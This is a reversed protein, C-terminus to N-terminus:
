LLEPVSKPDYFDGLVVAPYFAMASVSQCQDPPAENKDGCYRDLHKDKFLQNVEPQTGALVRRLEDAATPGSAVLARRIQTFLEPTRFMSLALTKASSAVRLDGLANIAAGTIGLFLSYKEDLSRAQDKDKATRPHQPPDKDIVKTLAGAAKASEGSYKGIARIAAVQAAILKKTVPRQALEILSDLGDPLRSEGLADAAKTASDVSRPNAEDVESLARKL